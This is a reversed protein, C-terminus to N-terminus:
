GRRASQHEATRMRGPLLSETFRTLYHLRSTEGRFGIVGKDVDMQQGVIRGAEIDFRVTGTSACEILQSELAPDQIPTLIQTSVGITAVGTKVDQLHFRQVTKVRKVGGTALNVEVESPLSWVHGVAVADDPLPITLLGSTPAAAAKVPQRSRRLVKGKPDLTVESLPVGLSRAVDEYGVPPQKDKLSDYRVEPRGSLKQRMDVSEVLHEFVASGDARVEKVRWAKISKSLTEATQSTGSVTTDIKARHLVEWRLTEQPQFKYRLLYKQSTEEGCARGIWVASCVLWAWALLRPLRIRANM